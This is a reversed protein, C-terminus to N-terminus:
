FRARTGVYRACECPWTRFYKRRSHAWTGVHRAYNRVGRAFRDQNSVHKRALTSQTSKNERALTSVYRQHRQAERTLRGQMSIYESTLKAQSNMHELLLQKLKKNWVAQTVVNDGALMSQSRLFYNQHWEETVHIWM